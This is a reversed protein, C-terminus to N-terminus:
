YREIISIQGEVNTKVNYKLARMQEFTFSYPYVIITNVLLENKGIKNLLDKLSAHSFGINILYMTASESVYQSEYDALKIKEVVTSFDYGDRILWTQLIAPLGSENDFAFPSIMDDGFLKNENPDFDIIKDLTQINPEMLRYHKFGFDGREAFLPNESRIKNAARKIRERAIQDITEYGAKEAESNPAVKEDLQVMIYKRNGGDNANLQMVAHATTGSGAFFDLIIDTSNSSIEILDRILEIPKPNDFLEEKGDFLKKLMNAASDTSGHDFLLNPRASTTDKEEFDYIKLLIKEGDWIFRNKNELEKAKDEGMQWRKGVRPLHGLIEFKMSERKYSGSDKKEIVTTRYSGEKDVKSYSRTEKRKIRPKIIAKESKRFCLTSDTLSSVQAGEVNSTTGKKKWLFNAIFNGEGFVDDMLLKLNAQENDDISVFIVGDETLLKQAIKLRPYMFTLWASHTSKGQISKLRAIETDTYGLATKLKEDTFDFKDSYVFEKDTNYPPDIYIMKIKGSYANQLHRLAELNDGTIFVNESGANEPLANHEMDPVMMTESEMGTQLRAYDKGVFSLRYGDRVEEVNNAKLAAEFKDAKFNGDADFYQPIAKQLTQLLETNPQINKNQDLIDKIAM